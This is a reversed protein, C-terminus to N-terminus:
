NTRAVPLGLWLALNWPLRSIVQATIRSVSLCVSLCFLRVVAIVYSRM